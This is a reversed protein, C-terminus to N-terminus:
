TPINHRRLKEYLQSRSVGLKRAAAAKQGGSVALADVIARREADALAAALDENEVRNPARRVSGPSLAQEILKADLIESAAMTAARELVNRL